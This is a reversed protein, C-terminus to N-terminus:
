DLLSDDLKNGLLFIPRFQKYLRPKYKFPQYLMEYREFYKNSFNELMDPDVWFSDFSNVAIQIDGFSEIVTQKGKLLSVLSRPLIRKVFSKFISISSKNASTMYNKYWTIPVDILLLIGGNKLMDRAHKLFDIFYAESPFYQTVSHLFICDFGGDIKNTDYLCSFEILDLCYFEIDSYAAQASCIQEESFDIGIICSQFSQKKLNHVIRGTGCGVELIKPFPTNVPLKNIIYDSIEEFLEPNLAQGSSDIWHDKKEFPLASSVTNWYQKAKILSSQVLHQDM